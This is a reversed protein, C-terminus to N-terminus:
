LAANDSTRRERGIMTALRDYAADVAGVIMKRRGLIPKEIVHWSFAAFLVILPLTTALTFWGSRQAPFLAISAEQIPAAYLYIGYSYDGDMLIPIHPPNTLGLCVTLYAAPLAVFYSGFTSLFLVYCVVLCIAALIWNLRVRERFFYLVIAWLFAQIFLRGPLVNRSTQVLDHKLYDHLPQYIQAAVVLALLAWRRRPLAGCLWLLVIALYCKLEFPVTWLSLNVVPVPNTKFVGPLVMQVDGYLNRFYVLFERNTFYHSLPLTTFIVGLIFASLVVEVALAPMIRIARLAVFEHIHKTRLLSGSVLFGSLAFFMPLIMKVGFGWTANDAVLNTPLFFSHWALVSFSLALRLYDFGRSRNNHAASVASITPGSLFMGGAAWRRFLPSDNVAAAM